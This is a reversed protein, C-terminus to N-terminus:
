RPKSMAVVVTGGTASRIVVDTVPYRAQLIRVNDLYTTLVLYKRCLTLFKDVNEACWPILAIPPDVSVIDWELYNPHLLIDLSTVDARVFHWHPPSQKTMAALMSADMDVITVEKFQRDKM